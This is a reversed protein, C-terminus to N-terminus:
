EPLFYPIERNHVGGKEEKKKWSNQSQTATLM